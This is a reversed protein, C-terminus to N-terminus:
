ARPASQSTAEPCLIHPGVPIPNRQPRIDTSSVMRGHCTLSPRPSHASRRKEGANREETEQRYSVVILAGAPLAIKDLGAEPQKLEVDGPKRRLLTFLPQTSGIPLRRCRSNAPTSEGSRYQLFTLIQAAETSNAPFPVRPAHGHTTQQHTQPHPTREYLSLSIQPHFVGESKNRSRGSWGIQRTVLCAKAHIVFVM